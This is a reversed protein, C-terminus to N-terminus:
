WGFVLGQRGGGVEDLLAEVVSTRWEHLFEVVGSEFPTGTALEPAPTSDATRTLRFHGLLQLQCSGLVRSLLQGANRALALTISSPSSSALCDRALSTRTIATFAITATAVVRM